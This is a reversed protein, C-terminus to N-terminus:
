AVMRGIGEPVVPTSLNHGRHALIELERMRRAFAVQSRAHQVYDGIHYPHDGVHTIQCGLDVMPKFGAARAKRCFYVDEGLLSTNQCATIGLNFVAKMADRKPKNAYARALDEYEREISDRPMRDMAFWIQGDPTEEATADIVDRRVLMAATGVHLCEILGPNDRGLAELLPWTDHQSVPCCAPKYPPRRRVAIPSVLAENHSLLRYLHQPTINGMDADIFWIHTLEPCLKIANKVCDNRAYPLLTGATIIYSTAGSVGIIRTFDQLVTPKVDSWVCYAVVIKSDGLPHGPPRKETPPNLQGSYIESPM